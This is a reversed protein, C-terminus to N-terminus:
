GLNYALMVTLLFPRPSGNLILPQYEWQRVAEIASAALLSHSRLVRLDEVRGDTGVTAELIV